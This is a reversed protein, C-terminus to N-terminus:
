GDLGLLKPLLDWGFVILSFYFAVKPIRFLSGLMLTTFRVGGAGSAWTAVSYPFPTLAAVTVAWFGYRALFGDIRYRQFWRRVWVHRGLLRGLTWGLPGALVSATCATFFVPWFGLGGAYAVFLVPEHTLVFTDTFLTAFFVGALGFRSVLEASAATLPDELVVALAAVGALMVVLGVGLRWALSRLDLEDLEDGDAQAAPDGVESAANAGGAGHPEVEDSEHPQGM